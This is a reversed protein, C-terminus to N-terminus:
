KVKGGSANSGSWSLKERLTRYPDKSLRAMALRYPSKTIRITDGKKIMTHSIGDVNIPLPKKDSTYTISVESTNAHVMPRLSLSHACIPTIAFIESQTDMIPGGASLNYATSGTPTAIILGDATINNFFCGDVEVQLSILSYNEGRHLVIDNIAHYVEGNAAKVQLMARYEIHYAEDLVQAIAGPISQNSVEALYGLYGSHIGIFPIGFKAYRGTWHLMTGDGGIIIFLKVKPKESSNLDINHVVTHGASTILEEVEQSLRLSEERAKDYFLAYTNM